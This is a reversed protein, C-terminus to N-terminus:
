TGEETGRGTRSGAAPTQDLLRSVVFGSALAFEALRRGDPLSWSYSLEAEAPFRAHGAQTGATGTPNDQLLPKM